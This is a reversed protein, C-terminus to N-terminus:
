DSIRRTLEGVRLGVARVSRHSSRVGGATGVGAWCGIAWGRRHLRRRRRHSEPGRTPALAPCDTTPWICAAARVDVTSYTHRLGLPRRIDEGHVVIEIIRAITPIPPSATSKASRRLAALVEVPDHRRDDAIQRKVMEESSFGARVFERAFRRKPLVAEVIEPSGRDQAFWNGLTGENIGLDRAVVAIPKGTERVIRVAGQRFERDYKCVM